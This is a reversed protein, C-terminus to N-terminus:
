LLMSIVHILMQEMEIFSSLFLLFILMMSFVWDTNCQVRKSQALHQPKVSQEEVKTKRAERLGGEQDRQIKTKKTNMRM